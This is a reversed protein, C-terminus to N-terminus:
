SANADRQNLENLVAVAESMTRPRRDYAMRRDFQEASSIIKRDAMSESKRVAGSAVLVSACREHLETPVLAQLKQFLDALSDDAASEEEAASAIAVRASTENAAGRALQKSNMKFGTLDAVTMRLVQAGSLTSSADDKQDHSRHTARSIPGYVAFEEEARGLSRRSTVLDTNSRTSTLPRRSPDRPADVCWKHQNDASRFPKTFVFVLSSTPFQRACDEVRRKVSRLRNNWRALVRRREAADLEGVREETLPPAKHLTFAPRDAGGDVTADGGPAGVGRRDLEPADSNPGADDGGGDSASADSPREAEPGIGRTGRADAGERRTGTTARARPSHRAAAGESATSRTARRPSPRARM